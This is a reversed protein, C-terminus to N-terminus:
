SAGTRVDSLVGPTQAAEGGRVRTSPLSRRSPSLWAPNQAASPVPLGRARSPFVCVQVLHPGLREGDADEHKTDANSAPLGARM